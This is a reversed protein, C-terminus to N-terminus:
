NKSIWVWHCLTANNMETNVEKQGLLFVRLKENPGESFFFSAVEPRPGELPGKGESGVVLINDANRM